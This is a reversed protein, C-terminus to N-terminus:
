APRTHENVWERIKNARAEDMAEFMSQTGRFVGKPQFDPIAWSRILADLRAGRLLAEEPSSSIPDWEKNGVIRMHVEARITGQALIVRIDDPLIASM